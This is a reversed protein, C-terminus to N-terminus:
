RKKATNHEKYCCKRWKPLLAALIIDNVGELLTTVINVVRKPMSYDM